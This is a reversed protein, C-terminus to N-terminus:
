AGGNRSDHDLGCLVINHDPVDLNIAGFACREDTSDEGDVKVERVVVGELGRLDPEDGLNVVRAYLSVGALNTSLSDILVPHGGQIGLENDLGNKSHELCGVGLVSLFNCNSLLPLAVLVGPLSSSGFPDLLVSLWLSETDFNGM